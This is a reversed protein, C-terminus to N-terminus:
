VVSKGPEALRRRYCILRAKQEDSLASANIAQGVIDRVGPEDLTASDFEYTKASREALDDVAQDGLIGRLADLLRESLETCESATRDEVCYTLEEEGASVKVPSAPRKEGAIWARVYAQRIVPMLEARAADIQDEAQKRTVSALRYARLALELFPGDGFPALDLTTGPKKRRSKARPQAATFVDPSIAITM